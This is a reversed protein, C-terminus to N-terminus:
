SQTEKTPMYQPAPDPKLQWSEDVVVTGDKLAAAFKMALERAHGVDRYNESWLITQGNRVNEVRVHFRQKIKTPAKAVVIRYESM